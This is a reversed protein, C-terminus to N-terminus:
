GHKSQSPFGTRKGCPPNDDRLPRPPVYYSGRRASSAYNWGKRSSPVIQVDNGDSVVECYSCNQDDIREHCSTPESTPSLSSKSCNDLRNKELKGKVDATDNVSEQVENLKSENLSAVDVLQDYPFNTERMPISNDDVVTETASSEDPFSGMIDALNTSRTLNNNKDSECEERDDPFSRDSDAPDANFV